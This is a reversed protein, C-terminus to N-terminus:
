ARHYKEVVPYPSKNMGNGAIKMAILVLATADQLALEVHSDGKEVSCTMSWLRDETPPQSLQSM